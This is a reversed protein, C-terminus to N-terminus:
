RMQGHAKAWGERSSKCVQVGRRRRAKGRPPTGGRGMGKLSSDGERGEKRQDGLVGSEQTSAHVNMGRGIRSRGERTSHEGACHVSQMGPTLVRFVHHRTRPFRKHFSAGAGM